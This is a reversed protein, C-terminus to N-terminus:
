YFQYDGIAVIGGTVNRPDIYEGTSSTRIRESSFVPKFSRCIDNVLVTNPPCKGDVRLTECNAGTFLTASCDCSFNRDFAVLDVPQGPGCGNGNPGYLYTGNLLPDTDRYEAQLHMEEVVATLGSADTAVMSINFVRREERPTFRAVVVGTASNIFFEPPAGVLTFQVEALTGTSVNSSNLLSFPAIRFNDGIAVM